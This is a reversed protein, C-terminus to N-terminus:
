NQPSSDIKLIMRHLIERYDGDSSCYIVESSYESVCLGAESPRLPQTQDLEDGLEPELSVLGFFMSEEEVSFM